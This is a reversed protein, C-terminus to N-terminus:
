ILLSQEQDFKKNVVIEKEIKISATDFIVYFSSDEFETNVKAVKFNEIGNKGFVDLVSEQFTKNRSHYGDGIKSVAVRDYVKMLVGWLDSSSEIAYTAVALPGGEEYINNCPDCLEFQCVAEDRWEEFSDFDNMDMNDFSFSGFGQETFMQTVASLDLYESDDYHTEIKSVLREFASPDYRKERRVKEIFLDIVDAWIAEEIETPERRNLLERKNVDVELLYVFGDNGGAYIAAGKLNKQYDSKEGSYAYIGPGFQDLGSSIFPLNSTKTNRDYIYDFLTFGDNESSLINNPTGHLFKM